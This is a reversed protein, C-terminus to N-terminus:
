GIASRRGACEGALGVILCDGVEEIDRPPLGDGLDGRDEADVFRDADDVGEEGDARTGQSSPAAIESWPPSCGTRPSDGLSPRISAEKSLEEQPGQVALLRPARVPSGIKMLRSKWNPNEAPWLPSRGTSSVRMRARLSM